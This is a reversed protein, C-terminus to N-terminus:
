LLLLRKTQQVTSPRGTILTQKEASAQDPTRHRIKIKIMKTKKEKKGNRRQNEKQQNRQKKM